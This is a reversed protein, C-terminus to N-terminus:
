VVLEPDSPFLADASGKLFRGTSPLALLAIRMSSNLEISKGQILLRQSIMAPTPPIMDQILSEVAHDIDSYDVSQPLINESIVKLLVENFRSALALQGLETLHLVSNTQDVLGSDLIFRCYEMAREPKLYRANHVENREILFESRNKIANKFESILINNDRILELAIRIRGYVSRRPVLPNFDTTVTVPADAILEFELGGDHRVPMQKADDSNSYFRARAGEFLREFTFGKRKRDIRQDRKSPARELTNLVSETFDCNFAYGKGTGLMAFCSMPFNNTLGVTRGAHCCDVALVLKKFGADRIQNLLTSMNKHNPLGEKAKYQLRLRLDNGEAGVAHGIYYVFLLTDDTVNIPDDEIKATLEAHSPNFLMDPPADHGTMPRFPYRGDPGLVRQLRGAVGQVRSHNPATGDPGWHGVILLRRDKENM